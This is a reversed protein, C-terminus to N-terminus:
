RHGTRLEFTISAWKSEYDLATDGVVKTMHIFKVYWQGASNLPV